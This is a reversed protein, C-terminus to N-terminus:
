YFSWLSISKDKSAAALLVSGWLPVTRPSYCLANVTETHETLVALNRGSKWSYVRINGDWCGLVLVKKDQRITVASVGPNTLTLLKQVCFRLDSEIKFIIVVDSETGFVGKGNNNDFDVAMPVNEIKFQSVSAGANLDLLYIDGSEYGVM